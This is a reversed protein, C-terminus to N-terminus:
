PQQELVNIIIIIFVQIIKVIISNRPPATQQRVASCAPLDRTGNANPDNLYKISM